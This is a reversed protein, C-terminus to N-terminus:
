PMPVSDAMRKSRFNAFRHFTLYNADHNNHAGGQDDDYATRCAAILDDGDFHWDVYQFGHKAVDPHRLLVCRIEWTRLDPSHVLALTNRVAAPHGSKAFPEPVISALTWYSCDRPDQRITFKKAGGPFDVFGTEQDFSATKGDASIDLIAAKEPLSAKDVRLVNAIHGDPLLVANGELWANFKGDLWAPDRPMFNSFTWNEAKLLDADVPVSLMGARYRKGWETGGSAEEFGRWLRGDHEIVPVPATHFQGTPTLLGTATDHPETWTKGGDTSRRIVIRGHHKDTGMLYAAGRHLFLNHWFIGKLKAVQTWTRGRDSSRFVVTTPRGFEDGKPGFFDHSALYDGNTLVTLSPSGIYLGSSAPSYDIVVGPVRASPQAHTINTTASGVSLASALRKVEDAFAPNSVVNAIEVANSRYDYLEGARLEWNTVSRWETYRFESTRISYGMTELPAGGAPRPCQTFAASKVTATPDLLVPRLSVGDLDHPPKLHCLDALTPYLDVLEALSDTKIGPQAQGPISIIIPIRAAIEFETEKGWQSQEGLHYGNDGWFVVITRGAIGLSDLEDLVKGVNADVFSIGALYGHRLEAQEPDSIKGSKPVGNYSRVEGGYHFALGPANEPRQAPNPPSLKTRDYLDWYRKPANYPLHPKWFGVGLFFPRDKLERLVKVAAAAIRGDLYAEDPVDLCQTAPGRNTAPTGYPQGATVWDSFHPGWHFQQPASWSDPDGEIKTDYNHYLKGLSRAEYGGQKFLQPLTVIVPSRERFHIRNNYIGTHEPRLGTMLSSRSPNCLAQQCYAHTFLRGRAALRDLNPTKADPSGYCGLECRLDDAAIFLVNLNAASPMAGHVAPLFVALM